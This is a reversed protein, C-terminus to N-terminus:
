PAVVGEIARSMSEAWDDKKFLLTQLTHMVDYEPDLKRQWGELVLTTVMVACVNGDLNVRHFRVHELLKQIRDATSVREGETSRWFEFSKEVEETFSIPDPCNQRRSLRLTSEAASRGDQLAVAKFFKLLNEREMKSLETTLGVDLFIVHPRSKFLGIPSLKSKAVRVLINGPHMDAHIFNDVLLM